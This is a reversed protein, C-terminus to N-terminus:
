KKEKLIEFLMGMTNFMIGCLSDELSVLGHNDFAPVGNRLLWTAMFHRGLSDFYVDQSIGKKWNDWDRLNGDSQVRHKGLYNVYYQLVIPSLAKVYSLKDKNTDRTAGTDFQRIEDM